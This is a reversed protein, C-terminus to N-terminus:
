ILEKIEKLARHHLDRCHQESYNTMESVCKWITPNTMSKPDDPHSDIYRATLVEKFKENKLKEITLQVEMRVRNCEDLQVQIEQELDVITIADREPQSVKKGNGKPMGDYSIGGGAINLNAKYHSQDLRKLKNASEKYQKLYEKATM